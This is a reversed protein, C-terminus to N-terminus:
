EEIKIIGRLADLKNNPNKFAFGDRKIDDRGEYQHVVAKLKKADYITLLDLRKPKGHIAISGHYFGWSLDKFLQTRSTIKRRFAFFDIHKNQINEYRDGIRKPDYRDTGFKKIIDILENISIDPHDESSLGRIILTEGMFHARLCDDVIKGIEKHSPETDVKYNPLHLTFIPIHYEM